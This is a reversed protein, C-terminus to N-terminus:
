SCSPRTQCICICLYTGLTLYMARSKRDIAIIIVVFLIIGNERLEIWGRLAGNDRNWIVYLRLYRLYITLVFTLPPYLGISVNIDGIM